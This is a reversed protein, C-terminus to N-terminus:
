LCMALSPVIPDPFLKSIMVSSIILGMCLIISMYLFGAFHKQSLLSFIGYNSEFDFTAGNFYYASITMNIAIFFNVIFMSLFPPYHNKLDATLISFKSLVFALGLAVLDALIRQIQNRHIFFINIYQSTEQPSYQETRFTYSDVLIM